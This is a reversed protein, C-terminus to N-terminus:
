RNAVTSVDGWISQLMQYAVPDHRQIENRNFPFYDNTGFYAETLEAFFERENKMGYAIVHSRYSGNYNQYSVDQYLEQDIANYYANSIMQDQYHFQKDHFAHSLEHLIVYKQNQYSREVFERINSIEINQFKEISMENVQLWGLSSHYRAIGSDTNWDLFIATQQLLQKKYDAIPLDLIEKLKENLIHLAKITLQYNQKYSKLETYITFGQISQKYYGKTYCDVSQAYLFSSNM